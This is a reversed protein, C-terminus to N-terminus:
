SCPGRRAAVGATFGKLKGEMFTYRTTLSATIRKAGSNTGEQDALWQRTVITADDPNVGRAQAAARAEGLRAALLPFFRTYDTDNRSYM